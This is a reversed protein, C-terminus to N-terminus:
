EPSRRSRKGLSVTSSSRRKAERRGPASGTRGSRSGARTSLSSPEHRERPKKKIRPWEVRKWRAIAEEDREVARGVPRQCSWGMRQLVRWVHAEHFGVGFHRDILDAVRQCTWLNTAYGHAEPGQELLESLRELDEEGLRSPRGIRGSSRLGEAGQEHLADAWRRVSERSVGVQRAVDAQSWGNQLLKGAKLRRRELEKFNRKVGAANGM